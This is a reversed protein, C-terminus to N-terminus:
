WTGKIDGYTERDQRDHKSLVEEPLIIIVMQM